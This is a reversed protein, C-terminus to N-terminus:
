KLKTYVSPCVAVRILLQLSEENLKAYGGNPSFASITYYFGNRWLPWQIGCPMLCRSAVFRETV